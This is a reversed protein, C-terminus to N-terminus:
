EWGEELTLIGNQFVAEQSVNPDPRARRQWRCTQLPQTACLAQVSRNGPEIRYDWRFAGQGGHSFGEHHILDDHFTLQRGFLTMQIERPWAVADYYWRQAFVSALGGVLAVAAVILSKKQRITKM